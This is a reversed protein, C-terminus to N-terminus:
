DRCKAGNGGCKKNAVYLVKGKGEGRAIGRTRSLSLSLSLWGCPRVCMLLLLPFSRALSLPPPYPYPTTSAGPICYIRARLRFHTCVPPHHATSDATDVHGFATAPTEGFCCAVIYIFAVLCVRSGVLSSLFCPRATCGRV